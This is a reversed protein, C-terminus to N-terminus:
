LSLRCSPFLVGPQHEDLTGEVCCCCAESELNRRKFEFVRKVKIACGRHLGLAAIYISVIATSPGM